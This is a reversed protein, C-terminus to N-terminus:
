SAHNKLDDWMSHLLKIPTKIQLNPTYVTIKLTDKNETHM